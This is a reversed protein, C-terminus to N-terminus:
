RLGEVSIHSVSRLYSMCLGAEPTRPDTVVIAAPKDHQVLRQIGEQLMRNSEYNPRGYYTAYTIMEKVRAVLTDFFVVAAVESQGAGTMAVPQCGVFLTQVMHGSPMPDGAPKSLSQQLEASAQAVSLAAVPMASQTIDDTAVPAEVLAAVEAPKPKRNYQRKPPPNIAVTEPKPEVQAIDTVLAYPLDHRPLMPNGPGEVPATVSAPVAAPLGAELRELLSLPKGSMETGDKFLPINCRMQHPCGRYAPCHEFNPLLTLVYRHKEGPDDPAANAIAQAEDAIGELARFAREIHGRTIEQRVPRAKYPARKRLYLWMLRVIETAAHCRDFEHRAYLVAQPDTLLAESTKAWKFDVTTKYDVVIGPQTLDKRGTWKHRGQYFFEGEAKAGTEPTMDEVYPLAEAAVAGVHTTRDPLADPVTKLRELEDHVAQGFLTDDNGPSRYGCIYEWGFKRPCDVYTQIRSASFTM